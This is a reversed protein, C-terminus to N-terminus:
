KSSDEEDMENKVKRKRWLVTGAVLVLVLVAAVLPLWPIEESSSTEEASKLSDSGTAMSSGETGNTTSESTGESLGTKEKEGTKSAESTDEGEKVEEKDTTDKDTKKHDETEEDTASSHNGSGDTSDSSNSAGSEQALKEVTIATSYAANKVVRDGYASNVAKLSDEVYCVVASVGKNSDQSEIKLNGLVLKDNEDFIGTDNAAYLYLYGDKYRSGTVADQLAEPFTFTVKEKGSAVDIKLTLSVATMQEKNAHDLGLSVEINGNKETLQVEDQTKTEKTGAYAVMGALPLILICAILVAMYRLRKTRKM